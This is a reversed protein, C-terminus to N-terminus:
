FHMLTSLTTSRTGSARLGCDVNWTGPMVLSIDPDPFVADETSGDDYRIMIKANKKRKKKKDVTDAAPKNAADAKEITGYYYEDKDFRVKVRMGESPVGQRMPDVGNGQTAPVAVVDDDGNTIPASNAYPNYPYEVKDIDEDVGQGWMVRFIPGNYHLNTRQGDLISCRMKMVRGQIPSFDYRDCSFGVPYLASPTSFANLGNQEINLQGFNRVTYFENMPVPLRPVTGLLMERAASAAGLREESIGGELYDGTSHRRDKKRKKKSSGDDRKGKAKGTSAAKKGSKKSKSKPTRPLIPPDDDEDEDQDGTVVPVVVADVAPEEEEADPVDAADAAAAVPVADAGESDEDDDDDNDNDDDDDDDEVVAEAIQVAGEDEDEDDEEVDHEYQQEADSQSENDSDAAAAVVVEADSESM